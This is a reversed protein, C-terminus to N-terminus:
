YSWWPTTVGEPKHRLAHTAMGRLRDATTGPGRWCHPKRDGYLFFGRYHPETTTKMWAEMEYVAQELRYTDMDGM